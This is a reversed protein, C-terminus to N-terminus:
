SVLYIFGTIFGITLLVFMVGTFCSLAKMFKLFPDCNCVECMIDNEGCSDYLVKIIHLFEFGLILGTAGLSVSVLRM